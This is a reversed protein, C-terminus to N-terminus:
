PRWITSHAEATENRLPAYYYCALSRRLHDGVIPDPHGHWSDPGCAFIVTRNWAPVAPVERNKGLHLTGGWSPDWGQALFVLMNLRRELPLAPHVNFDRHMELRGGEGTEHMGGGIDDATLPSIGTLAELATCAEPSRAADFFEYTAPGWMRTDGAKKGREKEDPYTIWRPDDVAPFEANIATLLSDPWLNDIVIHPFPAAKAFAKAQEPGFTTTLM